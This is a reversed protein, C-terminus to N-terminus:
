ERGKDLPDIYHTGTEESENRHRGILKLKGHFMQLPGMLIGVLLTPYAASCRVDEPLPLTSRGGSVKGRLLSVPCRSSELLRM